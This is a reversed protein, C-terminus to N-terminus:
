LHHALLQLTEKRQIKGTATRIFKPLNYYKKPLEYKSLLDSNVIRNQLTTLKSEEEILLILKEGLEEDAVGIVFFPSDIITSLKAEIQESFLKIGGSNVVSDVRGKWTFSKNDHLLVIDNTTIESDIIKPANIVLCERNDKSFCVNPLATFTRSEAKLDQIAVHTCTETMGYTAYCSTTIQQLQTQLSLSVPAGGIILKKIRQLENLSHKVQTPVMAAFDFNATTATMPNNSPPVFHIDWGLVMARVLMMKGAIYNASLCLLVKSHEPLNFYAGTAEASAIMHKKQLTIQKPVGTSGSTQVIITPTSDNWKKLFSAIDKLYTEIADTYLDDAYQVFSQATFSHNNIKFSPHFM